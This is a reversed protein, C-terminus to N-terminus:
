KQWSVGPYLSPIRYARYANSGKITMQWVVAPNATQTVEAVLSATPDQPYPESMDFEVNGNALQNISGGWFTYLDPLFEWDLSAIKKDEDIQFVTARSYCAENSETGCVNGDEDLVRENGDDFVALTMQSGSITVPSPFHQAYFWQRPDGGSLAFDGADGLRWL